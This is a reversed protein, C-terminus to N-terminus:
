PDDSSVNEDDDECDCGDDCVGIEHWVGDPLQTTIDLLQLGTAASSDVLFYLSLPPDRPTGDEPFRNDLVLELVERGGALPCTDTWTGVKELDCAVDKLLRHWRRARWGRIGWGRAQRWPADIWTDVFDFPQSAAPGVDEEARGDVLRWRRWISSSTYGNCVALEGGHGEYVLTVDDDELRLTYCYSDHYCNYVGDSGRALVRPSRPGAGRGLLAWSVAGWSSSPSPESWAAAVFFRGRADRASLRFFFNNLVDTPGLPFPQGGEYSDGLDPWEALEASWELLREVRAGDAAFVYVSADGLFTLSTEWSVALLDPDAEARVVALEATLGSWRGVSVEGERAVGEEDRPVLAVGARELEAALADHLHAAPAWADHERLWAEVFDGFQRHLLRDLEAELPEPKLSEPTLEEAHPNPLAALSRATRALEALACATAEEAATRPPAVSSSSSALALWLAVAWTADM